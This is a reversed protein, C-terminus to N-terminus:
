CAEGALAAEVLANAHLTTTDYSPLASNAPGLLLCVETCGFVVSDAGDRGAREVIAEYFRRSADTTIGRCLEDYIIAHVATRTEADPVIPELGREKLLGTYFSQEMTFRTALLLPRRRGDRILAVATPAAIHVFPVSIAATIHDAVKHMTNTALGIVGAGAQELTRAIDALLRGARDWEGAAQLDAIPAFDVSRLLIDASHLGGLRDRVGENLAAYYLRTSEWSMGGILGITKM